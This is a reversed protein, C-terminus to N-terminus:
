GAVAEGVLHLAFFLRAGPVSHVNNAAVTSAAAGAGVPTNHAMWPYAFCLPVLGVPALM